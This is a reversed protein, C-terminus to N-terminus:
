KVVTPFGANEGARCSHGRGTSIPQEDPNPAAPNAVNIDALPSFANIM